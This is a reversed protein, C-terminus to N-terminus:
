LKRRKRAARKERVDARMCVQCVMTAVDGLPLRYVRRKRLPRVAMIGAERDVTVTGAQLAGAGDLRAVVRFRARSM